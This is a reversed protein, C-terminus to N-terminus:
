KWGSTGRVRLPKEVWSSGNWVKTVRPVWSSGNWVKVRTHEFTVTESWASVDGESHHSRARLHYVGPGQEVTMVSLLVSSTVTGSPFFGSFWSITKPSPTPFSPDSSVQWQVEQTLGGDINTQSMAGMTATLNINPPGQLGTPGVSTPTPPPDYLSPTSLVLAPSYASTGSSNKARVDITYSEGAVVTLTQSRFTTSAVVISGNLRLDYSDAYAVADWRVQISTESLVSGTPASPTAPVPLLTTVTRYSSYPSVGSSNRSRVRFTYTTNPSLGTITQSRSGNSVVTTTARQWDYGSAGIQAPVTLSVSTEGVAAVTPTPPTPPLMLVTRYASYDSAGANNRARVRIFYTEGPLGPRVYVPESRIAFNSGADYPNWEWTETTPPTNTTLTLETQSLASITPTNPTAPPDLEPEYTVELVATETFIMYPSDSTVFVGVGRWNGDRIGRGWSLPLTVWKTEGWVWSQSTVTSTGLGPEGANIANAKSSYNHLRITPTRAASYGGSSRRTLRLRVGLIVQGSLTSRINADNFFWLGKHRGYNEWQGQYVYNNDTRWGGTNRWSGSENSTWSTTPM